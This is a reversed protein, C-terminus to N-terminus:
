NSGQMKHVLVDAFMTETLRQITNLQFQKTEEESVVEETETLRQITNLQFEIFRKTTPDDNQM